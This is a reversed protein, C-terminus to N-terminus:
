AEWTFSILVAGTYLIWSQWNFFRWEKLKGKRRVYSHCDCSSGWIHFKGNLWVASTPLFYDSGKLVSAIHEPCFSYWVTNLSWITGWEYSNIGAGTGFLQRKQLRKLCSWRSISNGIIKPLAKHMLQRIATVTNPFTLQRKGGGTGLETRTYIPISCNIRAAAITRQTPHIFGPLQQSKISNCLSETQWLGQLLSTIHLGEAAKRQVEKREQHVCATSPVRHRMFCLGNM